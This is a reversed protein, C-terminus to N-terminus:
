KIYQTCVYKSLQWMTAIIDNQLYSVVHDEQGYSSVLIEEPPWAKSTHILQAGIFPAGKLISSSGIWWTTSTPDRTPRFNM